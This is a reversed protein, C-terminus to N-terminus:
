NFELNAENLWELNQPRWGLGCGMNIMNSLSLLPKATLERAHQFEDMAKFFYKEMGEIQDESTESIYETGRSKGGESKFYLGRITHAAYASPYKRGWEALLTDLNDSSEMSYFAELFGDAMERDNKRGSEYDAQLTNLQLDIGAFKQQQLAAVHSDAEANALESNNFVLILAMAVVAITNLNASKM